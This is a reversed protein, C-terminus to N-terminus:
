AAARGTSRGTPASISARTFRCGCRTARSRSSSSGTSTASLVRAGARQQRGAGQRQLQGPRVEPVLRVHQLTHRQDFDGYFSEGTVRDAYRNRSFSYSIWGSVGTPPRASCCSRSARACLRRAIQTFPASRSGPVVRDDVLRSERPLGISSIRSRAITSRSRGGCRRRRDAARPRPRVARRAAAAYRPAALAGIVKSSILFSSISRRRRGADDFRVALAM